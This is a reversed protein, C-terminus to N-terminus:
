QTLKLLRVAAGGPLLTRKRVSTSFRGLRLRLNGVHLKKDRRYNERRQEGGATSCSGASGIAGPAAIHGRGFSVTLAAGASKAVFRVIRSGTLSGSAGAPLAVRCRAGSTAGGGGLSGRFISCASRSTVAYSEGALSTDRYHSVFRIDRHPAPRSDAPAFPTSSRDWSRSRASYRKNTSRQDM